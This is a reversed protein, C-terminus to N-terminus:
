DIGCEPKTEFQVGNEVAKQLIEIAETYTLCKFKNDLVNRLRDHLGAEGYKNNEFFQMDACNELSFRVCCRLYDEALSLDDTLDCFAMEPEIM